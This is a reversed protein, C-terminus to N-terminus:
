LNEAKAIATKAIATMDPDDSHIAIKELTDLLTDHSNWCLVLRDANAIAEEDSIEVKCVAGISIPPNRNEDLDLWFDKRKLKGKTHEM